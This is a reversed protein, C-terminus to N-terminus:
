SGGGLIKGVVVQSGGLDKDQLAWQTLRGGHFSRAFLM